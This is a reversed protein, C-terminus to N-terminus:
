GEGQKNIENALAYVVTEMAASRSGKILVVDGASLTPLIKEILAQKSPLVEAEGRFGSAVEGAFMGVVFLQDFGLKAALEGAERHFESAKEGLEAMDGLVLIRKGSVPMDSVAQLAAKVAGPNANYTDDIITCAQVGEIIQMRSNVGSFEALANQIDELKLVDPLGYKYYVVAKM